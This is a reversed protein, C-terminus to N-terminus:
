IPLRKSPCLKFGDYSSPSIRSTILLVVLAVHITVLRTVICKPNILSAFLACVKIEFPAFVLM